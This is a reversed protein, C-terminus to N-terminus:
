WQQQIVRGENERRDLGDELGTKRQVTRKDRRPLAVNGRGRSDHRPNGGPVSSTRIRSTWTQRRSAELTRERRTRGQLHTDGMATSGDGKRSPEWPEEYIRPNGYANGWCMYGGRKQGLRERTQHWCDKGRWRTSHFGSAMCRQTESLTAWHFGSAMCRQVESLTTSHVGSVVCRQVGSQTARHFGNTMSRQVESLTAWDYKPEIM